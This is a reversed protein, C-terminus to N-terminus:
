NDSFPHCPCIGRKPFADIRRTPSSAPTNPKEPQTAPAPSTTPAPEVRDPAPPAPAIAFREREALM